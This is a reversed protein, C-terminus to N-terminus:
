SRSSRGASSGAEVDDIKRALTDLRQGLIRLDERTPLGARVLATKVGEEVGDGIREGWGAVSEGIRDSTRGVTDELADLQRGEVERGREVLSDFLERGDEEASGALGFAGLGALWVSRGTSTLDRGFREFGNEIKTKKM